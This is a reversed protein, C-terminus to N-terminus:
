LHNISLEVLWHLHVRRQQTLLNVGDQEGSKHHVTVKDRNKNHAQIDSDMTPANPCVPVPEQEREKPM